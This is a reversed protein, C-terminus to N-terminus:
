KFHFKFHEMLLITIGLFNEIRHEEEERQKVKKRQREILNDEYKSIPINKNTNKM